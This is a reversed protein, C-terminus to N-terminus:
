QSGPAGEAIAAAHNAEAFIGILVLSRAKM